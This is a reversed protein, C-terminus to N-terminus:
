FSVGVSMLCLTLGETGLSILEETLTFLSMCLDEILAGQTFSESIHM